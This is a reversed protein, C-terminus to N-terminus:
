SNDAQRASLKVSYSTRLSKGEFLKLTVEDPVFDPPLQLTGEKRLFWEFEVAQSVQADPAPQDASTLPVLQLTVAKGQQQGQAEFVLRGKFAAGNSPAQRTLLARYALTNDQQNVELGRVSISGRPGAPLLQDFFALKEQAQGLESQAQKLATELGQRTGQEILLQSQQADFRLHLDQLQSQLQQQSLLLVAQERALREAVDRQAWWGVVVAGLVVGLVLLGLGRVWLWRSAPLVAPAALTDPVTVRGPDDSDHDAM